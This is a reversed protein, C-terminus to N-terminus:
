EADEETALPKITLKEQRVVRIGFARLWAASKKAAGLIFNKNLTPAERKLCAEASMRDAEEADPDNSMVELQAVALDEDDVVVGNSFRYAVAQGCLSLTKKDEMILRRHGNVLEEAQAKLARSREKLPNVVAVGAVELATKRAALDARAVSLLNDAKSKETLIVALQETPNLQTFQPSALLEASNELPVVKM